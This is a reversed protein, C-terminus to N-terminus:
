IDGSYILRSNICAWSNLKRKNIRTSSINLGALAQSINTTSSIISLTLTNLTMSFNLEEKLQHPNATKRMVKLLIQDAWPIKDACMPVLLAYWKLKDSSRQIMLTRIKKWTIKDMNTSGFRFRIKRFELTGSVSTKSKKCIM